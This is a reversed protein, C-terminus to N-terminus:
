KGRMDIIWVEAQLGLRFPVGWFGYSSSVVVHTSDIKEHGYAVRNLAKVIFNAPFVQGNYTHGSVQLDIPPQVNQDIESPRHDLLIVPHRTDVDRM